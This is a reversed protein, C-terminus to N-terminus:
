SGPGEVLEWDWRVVQAEWVDDLQARLREMLEELHGPSAHVAAIGIEARQHLDHFGTEAISIRWRAHAKEVVSKVVRRKEKLSRAAPLHLELLAVAVHVM